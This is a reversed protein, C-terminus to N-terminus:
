DKGWSEAKKRLEARLREIEADQDALKADKDAVVEEWVKRERQEGEEMARRMATAEISAAKERLRELEQFEATATIQEYARIAQEMM